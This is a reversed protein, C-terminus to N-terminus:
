RQRRAAQVAMDMLARPETIDAPFRGTRLMDMFGLTADIALFEPFTSSMVEITGYGNIRAVWKGNREYVEWDKMDILDYTSLAKTM